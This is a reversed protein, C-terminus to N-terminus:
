VSGSFPPRAPLGFRHFRVRSGFPGCSVEQTSGDPVIRREHDVDHVIFSNTLFDGGLALVNCAIKDSRFDFGHQALIGCIRRIALHVHAEPQTPPDYFYVILRNKIVSTRVAVHFGECEEDRCALGAGDDKRIPRIHSMLHYVLNQSNEVRVPDIVGCQPLLLSIILISSRGRALAASLHV